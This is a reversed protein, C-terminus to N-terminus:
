REEVEGEVELEEVVVEDVGEVVEMGVRMMMVRTVM